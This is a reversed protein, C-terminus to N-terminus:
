LIWCQQSSYHLDSVHNLDLMAMATAYAPLQLESEVGLRPDEMYWPYSKFLCFSFSSFLVFVLLSFLISSFLWHIVSSILSSILFYRYAFSLSSLVIWFRHSVAFATRLPFNIFICDWRLLCFFGWIFLKVKCWFCSPLSFCFGFSASLFFDDLDSCFYIFYFCYLLHIFSFASEEM